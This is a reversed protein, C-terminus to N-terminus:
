NKLAPKLYKEIDSRVKDIAFDAFISPLLDKIRLPSLNFCTGRQFPSKRIKKGESTTFKQTIIGLTYFKYIIKDLRKRKIGLEYQIKSLDWNFRKFGEAKYKILLVEFFVREDCSFFSHNYCKFEPYRTGFITDYDFVLLYMREQRRLRKISVLCKSSLDPLPHLSDIVSIKNSDVKLLIYSESNKSLNENVTIDFDYLKIEVLEIEEKKM